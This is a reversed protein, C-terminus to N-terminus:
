KRKPVMGIELVHYWVGQEKQWSDIISISNVIRDGGFPFTYEYTLRLEIRAEQTAPDLQLAQPDVVSFDKISVNSRARALSINKGLRKQQDPHEYQLALQMNNQVRAHWYAELRTQLSEPTAKPSSPTDPGGYASLVYASLVVAMSLSALASRIIRSLPSYCM